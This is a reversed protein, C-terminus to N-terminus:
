ASFSVEGQQRDNKKLSCNKCVFPKEPMPEERLPCEQCCSSLWTHECISCYDDSEHEQFEFEEESM